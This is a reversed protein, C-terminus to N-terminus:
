KKAFVVKCAFSVKNILGAASDEIFLFGLIDLDLWSYKVVKFTIFIV